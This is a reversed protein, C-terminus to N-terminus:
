SGAPASFDTGCGGCFQAGSIRRTGCRPCFVITPAASALPVPPEPATPIWPTVIAPAPRALAVTRVRSRREIEWIVRVLLGGALVQALLTLTEMTLWGRFADLTAVPLNAVVREAIVGVLWLLWWAVVIGTGTEASSTALRRWVDAGMQCPKMLNAIRVFWWGIAGAPSVSPTGGGLAPVNDVVRSLWTLFAIGSAIYALIYLGSLARLRREWADAEAVPVTGIRDVFGLGGLLTLATLGIAATTLAVLVMAWKARVASSRPGGTAVSVDPAIMDM